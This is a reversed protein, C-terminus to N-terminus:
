CGETLLNDYEELRVPEIELEYVEDNRDACVFDEVTTWRPAVDKTLLQELVGDVAEETTDAAMKLIRLYEMDATRPVCIEHLRDYTRRFNLTPFMEAKYRYDQFAGPKRVLSHIVHRYDLHVGGRGRLRPAELQLEDGFYIRVKDEYIRASVKKGILRSPVSYVNHAISVVSWKRVAAREEDWEALASANLEPMVDLEARLRDRRLGNAADMVGALFQEYEGRSGFDRSGRLLLHQEMRRKLHGNGSEVCGNENSKGVAITHPQMGFHGVMDLYRQNFQRRGEDGAAPNHTASTSNDTWIERPTHGLRFLASQIGTRLAQISESFCVTAWGWNSYSLVCHCLMHEFPSGNITVKLANMSTFDVSMRKGPPVNQPFFVEREPGSTARWSRVRRQFTRLHSEQLETPYHICLWDFLAKAELEPTERLMQEAKEWVHGLPDRRTRKKTKDKAQGDLVSAAASKLYKSGTQRCVGAKAAATEVSGTREYTKM